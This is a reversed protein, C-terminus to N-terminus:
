VAIPRFGQHQITIKEIMVHNGQADFDGTNYESVWANPVEWAKVVNGTRDKLKIIINARADTDNVAHEGFTKSAFDWMDTDESMGRELTIPDFKTLGPTKTMTPADGGERYEIVDTTMKLGSVKQFGARMFTMNGSITVEFRFSKYPDFRRSDSFKLGSGAEVACVEKLLKELLKNM